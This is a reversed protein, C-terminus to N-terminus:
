MFSDLLAVTVIFGRLMFMLSPNANVMLCSFKSSIRSAALRRWLKNSFTLTETLLMMYDFWGSSKNISSLQVATHLTAAVHVKLIRLFFRTRGFNTVAVRAMCTNVGAKRMVFIRSLSCMKIASEIRSWLTDPRCSFKWSRYTIEFNFELNYNLQELIHSPLAKTTHTQVDTGNTCGKWEDLSNM